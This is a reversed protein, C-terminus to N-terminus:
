GSEPGILKKNNEVVKDRIEEVKIFWSPVAKYILPTNSRWCFPYSHDLNDKQILRGKDKILKILTDDGKKVHLGKVEAVPDTFLGNSDVPCPLDQGKKIVKHALCVRYDDEGFAPAQHLVGTGADDTVYKDLLVRFYEESGESDVFYDFMPQYKKGVLEKGPFTAEIEYLEDAMKPKWKKKNKMIPFLQALRSKALIFRKDAKKDLIRIYELDPHVCLAINSPLTWLTTTWAVFSM